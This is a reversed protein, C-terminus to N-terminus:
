LLQGSFTLPRFQEVGGPLQPLRRIGHPTRRCTTVLVRSCFGSRAELSQALCLPTELSAL